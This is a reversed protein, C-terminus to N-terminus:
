PRAVAPVPTSALSCGTATSRGRWWEPATCLGCADDYCGGRSMIMSTLAEGGAASGSLLAEAAGGLAVRGDSLHQRSGDAHVEVGMQPDTGACLVNPVPSSCRSRKNHSRRPARWGVWPVSAAAFGEGQWECRVGCLGVGRATYSAALARVPRPPSTYRRKPVWRAGPEAVVGYPLSRSSPRAPRQRVPSWQPRYGQSPTRGRIV